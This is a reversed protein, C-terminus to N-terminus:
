YVYICTDNSMAWDIIKAYLVFVYARYHILIETESDAIILQDQKKDVKLTYCQGM